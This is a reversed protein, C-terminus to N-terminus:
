RVQKSLCLNTNFCQYENENCNNLFYPCLVEDSKDLCDYFGDCMLSGSICYGNNCRFQEDLCQISKCAEHTEDSGDECNSKFVFLIVYFLMAM